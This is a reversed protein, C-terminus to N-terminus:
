FATPVPIQETAAALLGRYSGYGGEYLAAIDRADWDTELEFLPRVNAALDAKWLHLFDHGSSSDQRWQAGVPRPANSLPAAFLLHGTACWLLLGSAELGPPSPLATADSRNAIMRILRPRSPAITAFHRYTVNVFTAAADVEVPDILTEDAAGPTWIKLIK